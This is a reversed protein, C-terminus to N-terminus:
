YLIKVLPSRGNRRKVKVLGVVELRKLARDKSWRSIGAAALAQNALLVTNQHRKFRRHTLEILVALTANEVKGAAALTREYPLMVFKVKGNRKRQKTSPKKQLPALDTVQESSLTLGGLNHFPNDGM